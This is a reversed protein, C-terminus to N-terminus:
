SWLHSRQVFLAHDAQFREVGKQYTRDDDGKGWNPHLHEVHANEAQAYVGRHKATAVLEDDVFNHDYGEHLLKDPEDITGCKLYDLDVLSHTSSLGQMVRANGLDNTGVVCANSENAVRLAEEIWGPHFNLDDAGLFVYDAGNSHAVHAGANIKRAYDGAGPAWEVDLGDVSGEHDGRAVSVEAREDHDGPSVIFLVSIAATPWGGAQEVSRVLAQVNQPRDLVPVLICVSTWDRSNM